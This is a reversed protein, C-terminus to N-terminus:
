RVREKITKIITEALRINANSLKAGIYPTKADQIIRAIVESDLMDMFHQQSAQWIGWREKVRVDQYYEPCTIEWGFKIAHYQEFASSGTPKPTTM